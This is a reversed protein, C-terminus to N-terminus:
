AYIYSFKRMNMEMGNHNIVLYQIYNGTSYLPVKINIWERFLLKCRSIGFEWDMGECVVLGGGQFGCTQERHRSDTETEYILKNSDYNLNWVRSIMHYKDKEKQRLIILDTWTAAFPMIKNKRIFSYCEM